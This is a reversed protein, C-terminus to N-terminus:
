FSAELPLISAAFNGPTSVRPFRWFHQSFVVDVSKKAKPQRYTMSLLACFLLANAFSMSSYTRPINWVVIALSDNASPTPRWVPTYPWTWRTGARSLCADHKAADVQIVERDFGLPVINSAHTIGRAEHFLANQEGGGFMQKGGNIRTADVFM